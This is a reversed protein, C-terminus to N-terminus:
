SEEKQKMITSLQSLIDTSGNLTISGVHECISELYELEKLRYLTKNEEMLKATNLLSRTSAVEERRKIVNAQARKEAILVTNMIERMEGPLIIDKISAELIEVYIENGKTKLQTFVDDGIDEKHALLEDVTHRGIHERLALQIMTYLQQEYNEIETAIRIGDIIRYRCIMNIRLVVKDKSLIDQGYLDLQKMRLDIHNVKIQIKTNWFFYIGADLVKTLQNDYYVLAKEYEAVEVCQYFRAPIKSFIYKPLAEGVYPDNLDIMTFTHTQLTKWFAHKGPGLCGAFLGNVYHLALQEDQVEILTTDAKIKEIMLLNELTCTESFLEEEISLIEIRTNRTTHYSGASLLKQLKGNKFFLGKQNENIMTYM